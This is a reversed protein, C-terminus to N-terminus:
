GYGLTRGVVIAGLVLCFLWAQILPGYKTPADAVLERTGQAIREQPVLELLQRALDGFPSITNTILVPRYRKGQLILFLKSGTKVADFSEVDPWEIRVSRLFKFVTVGQDDVRVRRALIEVGLYFFPSLAVLLLMGKQTLGELMLLVIGLGMGLMVPPIMRQDVRYVTEQM